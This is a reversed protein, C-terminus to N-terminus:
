TEENQYKKRMFRLSKSYYDPYGYFVIEFPIKLNQEIYSLEAKTCPMQNIVLVGDDDMQAFDILGRGDNWIRRLRTGLLTHYEIGNKKGGFNEVKLGKAYDQLAIVIKEKLSAM